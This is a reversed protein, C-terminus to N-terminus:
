GARLAAAVEFRVQFDPDDTLSAVQDRSDALGIVSLARVAKWRTWADEARLADEFIPRFGPYERDAAADIATRRVPLASDHWGAEIAGQATQDDSAEALIAVAVRRVRADDDLLARRLRNQDADNDPDLLHLAEGSHEVRGSERMLEDRTREPPTTEHATFLEEVLTLLPELRDEWSSQRGLGITVFDGAVMVDTIDPEAFLRTVRADDSGDERLYWAGPAPEGGLNFKVKRPHPTAEPGIPGDFVRDFISEVAEAVGTVELVYTGDVVGHHLTLEDDLLHQWSGSAVHPVVLRSLEAAEVATWRDASFFQRLLSKFPGLAEFPLQMAVEETLRSAAEGVLGREAVARRSAELEDRESM